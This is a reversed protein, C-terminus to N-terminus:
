EVIVTQKNKGKTSKKNRAAKYSKVNMEKFSKTTLEISMMGPISM